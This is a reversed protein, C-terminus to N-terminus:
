NRYSVFLKETKNTFYPGFTNISIEVGVVSVLEVIFFSCGESKIQVSINRGTEIERGIRGRLSQTFDLNYVEGCHECVGGWGANWPPNAFAGPIHQKREFGPMRVPHHCAAYLPAEQGKPYGYPPSFRENKEYQYLTLQKLLDM